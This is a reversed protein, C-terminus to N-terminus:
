DDPFSPEADIDRLLDRLMRVEESDLAQESIRERPAIPVAERAPLDMCEKKRLILRDALEAFRVAAREGVVAYSLIAFHLAVGNTAAIFGCIAARLLSEGIPAVFYYTLFVLLSALIGVWAAGGKPFETRIAASRVGVISLEKATMRGETFLLFAARFEPSTGKVCKKYFLDREIGSIVGRRALRQARKRAAIMRGCGGFRLVLVTGLAYVVSSLCSILFIPEACTHALYYLFIVTGNFFSEM